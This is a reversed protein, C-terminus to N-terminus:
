EMHGSKSPVYRELSHEKYPLSSACDMSLPHLTTSWKIQYKAYSVQRLVHVCVCVCVCMCVHLVKHSRLERVLSQVVDGASCPPNKVM